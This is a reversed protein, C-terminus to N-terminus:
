DNTFAEAEKFIQELGEIKYEIKVQDRFVTIKSILMHIVQYQEVPFMNSWTEQLNQLASIVQESSLEKGDITLEGTKAQIGAVLTPSQFLRAIERVVLNELEPIPVTRM